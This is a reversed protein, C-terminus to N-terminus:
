WHRTNKNLSIVFHYSDAYLALVLYGVLMPMTYMYTTYNRNYKLLFNIM